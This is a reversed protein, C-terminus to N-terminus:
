FFLNLNVTCNFGSSINKITSSTESLIKYGESEKMPFYYEPSVSVGFHRCIVYNLKCGLTLSSTNAGDVINDYIDIMSYDDFSSHYEALEEKFSINQFGIQPTLRMRSNLRLGYGLKINFGNPKYNAERPMCEGDSWFITEENGIAGLYNFEFGLNWLYFGAGVSWSNFGIPNYGVQVYAEFKNVYNKHLKLNLVETAGDLRIRKSYNSYGNAKLELNYAGAVVSINYPTTGVHKGDIFVKAPTNSNITANCFDTLKKNIRITKYEDIEKLEVETKYGKKSIEIKHEGVLIRSSMYPTQGVNEGDIYVDANTPETTIEISGYIPIPPEISVMRDEGRVFSIKTLSTKHGIKKAEITHEGPELRGQWKGTGLLIGNDFIQADKDSSITVNAYNPTFTPTINIFASDTVTFSDSFPFYLDKAVTIKHQGSKLNLGKIPLKGVYDEDIYIDAGDFDSSPSLIDVYGFAQKLRISRTQKKDKDYISIKGEETHYNSATIRYNHTGFALPIELIGQSTLTMPIGNIFVKADKPFVDLVLYQSNNYDVIMTNVRESTLKLIYTKGKKVRQGLDYDRIIGHVPHQITIKNVGHPVYLWIEGPHQANQSVVETVGISGVDFLFNHETTEIKILACKDGNLDYKMTGEANATLDKEDLAFSAVSMSQGYVFNTILFLVLTTLFRTFIVTTNIHSFVDM